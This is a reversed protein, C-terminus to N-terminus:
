AWLGGRIAEALAKHGYRYAGGQGVWVVAPFDERLDVHWGPRPSWDPYWGLGGFHFRALLAFEELPTMGEAFHFDVADALPRDHTIHHRSDPSHGTPDYAVHIHIPIGSADRVADMRKVLEPSVKWPSSGWEVPSFHRIGSFFAPFLGDFKM